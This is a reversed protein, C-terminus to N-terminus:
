PVHKWTRRHVISSINPVTVGFVDSLETLTAGKARRRRIERVGDETLKARSTGHRHKDRMNESRTKWTLNNLTNNLKRGDDHAGDAGDPRPGVFTELVLSHITRIKQAGGICLSVVKYGTPSVTPKLMIGMRRTQVGDTREIWRDM